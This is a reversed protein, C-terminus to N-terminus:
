AARESAEGFSVRVREAINSHGRVGRGVVLESVVAGLLRRREDVPLVPWAARLTTRIRELESAEGLGALEAELAFLAPELGLESTVFTELGLEADLRRQVLEARRAGVRDSEGLEVELAEDAVPGAWDLLAAEVYVDLAPQLIAVRGECHANSCRYVRRGNGASSSGLRGGCSGCRAIGSLLTRAGAAKTPRGAAWDASPRQAAEFLELEVIAPHADGNVLSGYIVEGVYARNEIMGALTAPAVKRGTAGAFWAALERWSTGAARRRFLERVTEADDTAELRRDDGVRLGFPARAKIAIGQEVANRKAVDFGAASKEWELRALSFFLDRQFRGEPTTPDFSECASVIVGGASEIREVLEVRDRPALRSLRSLNYVIIGDLEGGEIQEVIADLIARTKKSGSVDLEPAFWAVDVDTASAKVTIGSRQFDPSRLREDREGVRSVRIYGGLRQRRIRRAGAQIRGSRTTAELTAM